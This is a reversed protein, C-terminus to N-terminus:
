KVKQLGCVINEGGGKKKCFDVKFFWLLFNGAFYVNISDQDDYISSAISKTMFGYNQGIYKEVVIYKYYKYVYPIVFFNLYFRHM